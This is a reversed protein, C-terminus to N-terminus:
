PAAASGTTVLRTCTGVIPFKGNAWRAQSGASGPSPWHWFRSHCPDRLLRPLVGRRLWGPPGPLRVPRLRVRVLGGRFPGGARMAPLAPATPPSKSPMRPLRTDSTSSLPLSWRVWRPLTSPVPPGCALSLRAPSAPRRPAGACRLGRTYAPVRHFRPTGALSASPTTTRQSPGLCCFEARRWPGRPAAAGGAPVIGGSQGDPSGVPTGHIGDDPHARLHACVLHQGPSAPLM